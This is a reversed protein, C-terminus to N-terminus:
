AIALSTSFYTMTAILDAPRTGFPRAGNKKARVVRSRKAIPPFPIRREFFPITRRHVRASTVLFPNERVRFPM